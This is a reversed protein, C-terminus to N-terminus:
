PNSIANKAQCKQIHTYHSNSFKLITSVTSESSTAIIYALFTQHHNLAYGTNNSAIAKSHYIFIMEAGAKSEKNM